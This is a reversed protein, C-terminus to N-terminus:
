NERTLTIDGFELTEANVIILVMPKNNRMVMEKKKSDKKKSTQFSEGDTKSVYIKADKKNEVKIEYNALIANKGEEAIVVKSVDLFIFTFNDGKFIAYQKDFPIGVDEANAFLAAAPLCFLLIALLKKM